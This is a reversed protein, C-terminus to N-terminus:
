PDAYREPVGDGEVAVTTTGAPVGPAAFTGDMYIKGEVPKGKGPHSVVKGAGLPKGELTVKGELTGAGKDAAPAAPALSCLLAASISLGAALHPVAMRVTVVERYPGRVTPM